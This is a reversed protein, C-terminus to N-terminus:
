TKKEAVQQKQSYSWFEFLCALWFDWFRNKVM